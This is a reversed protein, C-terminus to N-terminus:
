PMADVIFATLAKLLSNNSEVYRARFRLWAYYYRLACILCCRLPMLTTIAYRCPTLPLLLMLAPTASLSTNDAAFLPCIIAARRRSAMLLRIASSLCRQCRIFLPLMLLRRRIMAAIIAAFFAVRMLATIARFIMASDAADAAAARLLRAHTPHRFPIKILLRAEGSGYRSTIEIRPMRFDATTIVYAHFVHRCRILMLLMLPMDAAFIFRIADAYRRYYIFDVLLLAEDLSFAIDFQLPTIPAFRFVDIYFRRFISIFLMFTIALLFYAFMARMARTIRHHHHRWRQRLILRRARKASSAASLM